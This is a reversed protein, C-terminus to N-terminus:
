ERQLNKYMGEVQAGLSNMTWALLNYYGIIFLIEILQPHSYTESLTKWTSDSVINNTYLEDVARVLAAESPDWGEEEPGKKIREIVDDSFLKQYKSGAVHHQWEYDSQCLWAIRLIIIEKERRPIDSHVFVQNAFLEWRLFLPKNRMLTARLNFITERQKIYERITDENEEITTSNLTTGEENLKLHSILPNMYYSPSGRMERIIALVAKNWDSKDDDTEDYTVRSVAKRTSVLGQIYELEDLPSVRSKEFKLLDRRNINRVVDQKKDDSM